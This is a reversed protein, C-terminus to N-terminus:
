AECGDTKTTQSDCLCPVTCYPIRVAECGMYRGPTVALMVATKNEAMFEGAIPTIYHKEKSSLPSLIAIISTEPEFNM